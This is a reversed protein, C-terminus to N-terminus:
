GPASTELEAFRDPHLAMEKRFLRRLARVDASVQTGVPRPRGITITRSQYDLTVPVIPVGAGEAIRHFGTKWEATRRRTGEPSLALVHQEHAAFQAIATSVVGGPLARDVPRGGLWRLIPGAPGRFITHKGLWTVRLRLAFMAVIGLAFDWNSTHPAVILVFRPEDPLGGDIRWGLARLIGRAMAASLPGGRRPPGLVKAAPIVTM